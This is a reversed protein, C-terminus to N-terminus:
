EYSGFWRYYANYQEKFAAKKKIIEKNIASKKAYSIMIENTAVRWTEIDSPSWKNITTGNQIFKNMSEFDAVKAKLTTNLTYAKIASELIAQLDTPLLAYAKENILFDALVSPQWIAPVIAHKSIDNLGLEWAGTATTWEVADLDGNELAPKIEEPLLPITYAGSAASLVESPLGPGIRVKKAKLDALSNVPKNSLLGFEMGPWWAPRWLIGHPNSLSNALATGEGAFFFMMSADINMFDFPGANLLAWAPNKGSWWNPWGNGMEITGQQVATYIDSGSTIEGSAHVTINLRGASMVTVQSSFDQLAKFDITHSNAQSQLQWNFVAPDKQICGTLVVSLSVIFVLITALKCRNCNM